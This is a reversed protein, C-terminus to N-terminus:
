RRIVRVRHASLQRCVGDQRAWCPLVICAFFIPPVTLGVYTWLVGSPKLWVLLMLPLPGFFIFLAPALYYLLGNFFCLKSMGSIHSGWFGGQGVLALVGTCWRYQQMFFSRQDSPCTGTALCLPLYRVQLFPSKLRVCAAFRTRHDDTIPRFIYPPPM